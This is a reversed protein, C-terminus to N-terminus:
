GEDGRPLAAQSESPKLEASWVEGQGAVYQGTRVGAIAYGPLPVVAMCKGDFHGGWRAFEFDRSEFGYERREAALEAGDVPRIHLFFGAATDAAVCSERRYTLEGDRWYLDFKGRFDPEVGVLAAARERLFGPAVLPLGRFEWYGERWTRLSAIPYDPLEVTALCQGDFRIGRWGFSFENTEFGYERREVVLDGTDEPTIHLFFRGGTDRVGCSERYYILTGEQRYLEFGVGETAGPRNSGMEAALERLGPRIFSHPSEWVTNLEDNAYRGATVHSVPRDPLLLVALCKDELRVGANHLYDYSSLDPIRGAWPRKAAPYVKVGFQGSREGPQCDEKVFTLRRGTLYVAYEGRIIPKGAIAERYIEEYGAVAAADMRSGDLGRLSLISSNYVPSHQSNFALDPRHALEFWRDMATLAYDPDHVPSNVLASRREGSQLSFSGLEAIVTLLEGPHRALLSAMGEQFTVRWYDMEYQSRLQNPTTRDVLFNFYIHEWPRLQAVQLLTLGLGLGLFGYLGARRWWLGSLGGAIWYLGGVALLVFPAYIFYLQRWGNYLNSGSLAAGLLPLGFCGALLLWFRLRGNVLVAEPRALGRAAVVAIGVMGLLLVPPPTSILFRTLAYHAPLKPSPILEGQFLTPLITPHDTTLSLAGALHPLPNGWANPALGYWVLGAAAVFLGGTTLLRRREVWGRALGVDLVRMGVVALFLALGMIRLNTAIGVAIGLLLFAGATDKRFARETLYLAVVFVSLFPLDKPNFFSHAYIRPHLLFLLLAFLAILRNNFLRYALLYCFFVGVLFLLHILTSRLWRVNYYDELGLVREALLLPLEFSIGYFRDSPDFPDIQDVRGAIYNLNARATIRQNLEDGVIGYGEAWFIGALMFLGCLLLGGHASLLNVAARRVPSFLPNSQPFSNSM